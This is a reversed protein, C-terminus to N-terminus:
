QTKSVSRHPYHHSPLLTIAAMELAHTEWGEVVLFRRQVVCVVDQVDFGQLGDLHVQIHLLIFRDLIPEIFMLWQNAGLLSYVTTLLYILTKM